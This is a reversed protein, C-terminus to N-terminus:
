KHRKFFYVVGTAAPAVNVLEWGKAGLKDLQQETVYDERNFGSNPEKRLGTNESATFNTRQPESVMLYEWQERVGDM